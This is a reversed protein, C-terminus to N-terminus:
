FPVNESNDLPIKDLEKIEEKTFYAPEDKDENNNKIYLYIWLGGIFNVIVVSIGIIRLISNITM